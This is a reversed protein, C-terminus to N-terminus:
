IIQDIKFNRNISLTVDEFIFSNKEFFDVSVGFPNLKKEFLCVNTRKIQRDTDLYELSGCGIIDGSKLELTDRMGYSDWDETTVYGM